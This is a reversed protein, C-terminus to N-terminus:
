DCWEAIVRRQKGPFLGIDEPMLKARVLARINKGRRGLEEMFKRILDKPNPDCIHTPGRELTDRISMSIPVHANEHTLSATVENKQTKDHYSESDYFIAHQYTRTEQQPLADQIKKDQCEWKEIVRYGVLCLARTSEATALFLKERTQGHSIITDRANPFCRICGQWHWGHYPFVTRSTPDYGDAPAGVIGREGGHDCLAHHIHKGLRKNTRKLWRISSASARVKGYFVKEYATQTAQVRNNPCDIFKQEQACSEAHRQLNCVKTFRAQCDACAYVKGLKGIDEILFAHDDYIEITM